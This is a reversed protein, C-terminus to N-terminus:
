DKSLIERTVVVMAGSTSESVKPYDMSMNARIITAMALISMASGM